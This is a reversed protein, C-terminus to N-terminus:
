GLWRPPLDFIIRFKNDKPGLHPTLDFEHPTHSGKFSGIEKGNLHVWGSYDLGECRLRFRHGSKIDLPPLVAEYVWHRNEVWECARWNEGINWDPLLGGEKLALQVSGPVRAPIGMIEANPTECLDINQMLRWLHPTWGSLKWKLNSLEI